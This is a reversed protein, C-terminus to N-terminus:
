KPIFCHYTRSVSYLWTNPLWGSQQYLMVRYSSSDLRRRISDVMDLTSATILNNKYANLIEWYSPLRAWFRDYCDKVANPFLAATNPDKQICWLINGQNQILVFGAPCNVSKDVLSNWKAASLTENTNVYLAGTPSPETLNPNTTQRAKIALYSIWLVIIIGLGFVM